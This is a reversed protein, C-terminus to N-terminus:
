DQEERAKERQNIIRVVRGKLRMVEKLEAPYRHITNRRMLDSRSVLELNDLSINRYNGDRFIVAHGRPVPGHEAEWLLLYVPRCHTHPPGDDTVKRYLHGDGRLEESGIERWNHPRNGLQFRSGEGGIQLGKVGKNWPKLGAAFRSAAGASRLKEASAAMQELMYQPSKELRLREARGYVASLSRGLDAALSASDEHPYRSRLAADEEPTWFRRKPKM